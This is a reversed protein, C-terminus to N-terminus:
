PCSLWVHVLTIDVCPAGLPSRDHESESRDDTPGARHHKTQPHERLKVDLAALPRSGDRVYALLAASPMWAAYEGLVFRLVGNDRYAVVSASDDVIKCEVFWGWRTTNAVNRYAPPRFVLDPKKQIRGDITRQSEGRIVTEFDELWSVRRTGTLTDRENLIDQIRESVQEEQGSRLLGPATRVLEAWAWRLAAVIAEKHEIALDPEHVPVNPAVALSPALRIRSM